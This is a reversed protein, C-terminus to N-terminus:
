GWIGCEASRTGCKFSGNQDTRIRKSGRQGTRIGESAPVIRQATGMARTSVGTRLCGHLRRFVKGFGVGGRVVLAGSGIKVRESGNQDTRRGVETDRSTGTHFCRQPSIRNRKRMTGTWFSGNQDLGAGAFWDRGLWGGAQLAEWDQGHPLVGRWLRRCACVLLAVGCGWAGGVGPHIRSCQTNTIIQDKPMPFQDNPFENQDTRIRKSGAWDRRVSGLEPRTRFYASVLHAPM